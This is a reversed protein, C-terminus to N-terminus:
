SFRGRQAGVRRAAFPARGTQLSMRPPLLFHRDEEGESHSLRVLYRPRDTCTSMIKNMGPPFPSFFSALTSPFLLFHHPNLFLFSFLFFIVRTATDFFSTPTRSFFPHKKYHNVSLYVHHNPLYLPM